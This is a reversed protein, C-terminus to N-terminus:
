LWFWIQSLTCWALLLQYFAEAPPMHWSRFGSVTREQFSIRRKKTWRAYRKPFRFLIQFTDREKREAQLDNQLISIPLYWFYTPPLLFFDILKLSPRFWEFCQLSHALFHHVITVASWVHVIHIIVLMRCSNHLCLLLGGFCMWSILLKFFICLMCAALAQFQSQSVYLAMLNFCPTQCVSYEVTGWLRDRRLWGILFVCVCMCVSYGAM